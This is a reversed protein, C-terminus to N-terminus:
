LTAVPVMGCSCVGSPTRTTMTGASFETPAIMPCLRTIPKENNTPNKQKRELHIDAVVPEFIQDIQIQGDFFRGFFKRANSQRDFTNMREAIIMDKVDVKRRISRITERM